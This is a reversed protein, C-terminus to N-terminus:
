YLPHCHTAKTATAPYHYTQAPSHSTANISAFINTTFQPDQRYIVKDSISIGNSTFAAATVIRIVTVLETVMMFGM